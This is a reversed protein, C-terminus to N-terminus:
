NKKSSARRQEKYAESTKNEEYKAKQQLSISERNKQYYEQDKNPNRSRYSAQSLRQKGTARYLKASKKTCEKCQSKRYLQKVTGGKNFESLLKRTNCKTCIKYNIM